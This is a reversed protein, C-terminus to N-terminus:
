LWTGELAGCGRMCVDYVRVTCCLLLSNNIQLCYRELISVFIRPVSKNAYRKGGGSSSQVQRTGTAVRERESEGASLMSLTMIIQVM